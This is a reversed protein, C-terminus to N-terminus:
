VPNQQNGSIHLSLVSPVIQVEIEVDLVKSDCVFM